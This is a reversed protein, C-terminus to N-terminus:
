TINIKNIFKKSDSLGKLFSRICDVRWCLVACGFDYLMSKSFVKKFEPYTKKMYRGNRAKYYMRFPSYNYDTFSIGLVKKKEANGFHHKFKIHPLFLNSYGHYYLKLSIDYDVYDIFLDNDVGGSKIFANVNLLSGSTICAYVPYADKYDGKSSQVTLPSMMTIDLDAEEPNVINCCIQGVEDKCYKSYEEIMNPPLISDQDLTLLWQCGIQKCYAVAQNLAFAMGCNEQNFLCSVKGPYTSEFQSVLAKLEKINSSCNDIILIRDVQSVVSFLSSELVPIDPNYSVISAITQM